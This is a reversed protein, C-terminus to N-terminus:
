KGFGLPDAVKQRHMVVSRPTVIRKPAGGGSRLSGGTEGVGNRLEGFTAAKREELFLRERAVTPSGHQDTLTEQRAADVRQHGGNRDRRRTGRHRSLDGRDRGGQRM